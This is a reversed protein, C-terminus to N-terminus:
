EYLEWDNVFEAADLKAWDDVADQARDFDEPEYGNANEALDIIDDHSVTVSKVVGNVMFSLITQQNENDQDQMGLYACMYIKDDLKLFQGKFNNRTSLM